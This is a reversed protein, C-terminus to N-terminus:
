ETGLEALFKISGADGLEAAKRLWKLGEEEDKDVGIGRYYCLGLNGTAKQDGMEAAMRTWKVGEKEDKAIGIGKVYCFGLYGMGCVEGAEAAKQLWKVGEAEDKVARGGTLYCTALNYCSRVDNLEAGKRLWKVAEVEDKTVGIGKGYYYGLDGCGRGSGLDAAKRIWEAGTTEDKPLGIGQVYCEGLRLMSPEDGLEAAKHYLRIGEAEDKEVVIGKLYCDGLGTMSNGDGLESAKRLLRFGEVENKAGVLGELYCSGLESMWQRGGHEAGTLFGEKVSKDFFVRSNKERLEKSTTSDKKAIQGLMFLGLPHDREASKTAWLKADKLSIHKGDTGCFYARAIIAQALADGKEAKKQWQRIDSEPSIKDRKHYNRILYTGGVIAAALIIGLGVIMVLLGTFTKKFCEKPLVQSGDACRIAGVSPLNAPTIPVVVRGGCSPCDAAAGSFESQTSIKTGCHCCYFKIM